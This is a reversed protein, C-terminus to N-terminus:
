ACPRNIGLDRLNLSEIQLTTQSDVVGPDLDAIVATCTTALAPQGIGANAAASLVAFEMMVPWRGPKVIPDVRVALTTGPGALTVNVTVGTFRCNAFPTAVKIVYGWANQALAVTLAAGVGKLGSNFQKVSAGQTNAILVQRLAQYDAFKNLYVLPTAGIAYVRATGSGTDGLISSNRHFGRAIREGRLELPLDTGAKVGRLKALAESKRAESRRKKRKKFIRGLKLFDEDSANADALDQGLADLDSDDFGEEDYISEIEDDYSAELPNM